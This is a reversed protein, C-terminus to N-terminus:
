RVDGAFRSHTRMWSGLYQESLGQTEARQPVPYMEATDFFNVGAELCTSLLQHATSYDQFEGFLMTGANSPVCSQRTQAM